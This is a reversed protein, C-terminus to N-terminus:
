FKFIPKGDEGVKVYNAIDITEAGGNDLEKLARQVTKINCGVQAAIQQNKLGNKHLEIILSRDFKGNKKHPKGAEASALGTGCNKMEIGQMLAAIIPDSDDYKGYLGQEMIACTLKYALEKSQQELKQIMKYYREEMIFSKIEAM